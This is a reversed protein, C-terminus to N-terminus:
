RRRVILDSLLRRKLLFFTLLIIISGYFIINFNYDAIKAYLYTSLLTILTIFKMDTVEFSRKYIDILFLSIFIFLSTLGLQEVRLVDLLISIFFIYLLYKSSSDTLYLLISLIIVLPFSIFVSEILVSVFLSPILILKYLYM